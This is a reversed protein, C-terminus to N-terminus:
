VLWTWRMWFVSVSALMRRSRTILSMMPTLPRRMISAIISPTRSGPLGATGASRRSFAM